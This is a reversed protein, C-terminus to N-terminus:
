AQSTGLGQREQTRGRPAGYTRLRLQRAVAEVLGPDPLQRRRRRITSVSTDLAAALRRASLQSSGLHVAACRCAVTELDRGHLSPLAAAAAAADALHEFASEPLPARLLQDLTVGLRAALEEPRIRPLCRAVCTATNRGLLRLGLLDPLNSAEAWPDLLLDHRDDQRLVYRFANYLHRQDRVPEFHPPDFPTPLRLRSRLARAMRWALKGAAPRSCVAVLHLHSDAARFALVPCAGVAGLVARAFARQDATTPALVRGDRPSMRLHYGLVTM